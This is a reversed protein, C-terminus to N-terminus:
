AEDPPIEVFNETHYGSHVQGTKHDIVVCHGPMNPIEGLFVYVGKPTFPYDVLRREEVEETSFRVWPTNDPGKAVCGALKGACWSFRRHDATDADAFSPWTRRAVPGTM